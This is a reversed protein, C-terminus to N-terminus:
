TRCIGVSVETKFDQRRSPATEGAPGHQQYYRISQGDPGVAVDRLRGYTGKEPGSAFLREISKVAYRKDGPDFRLRLLAQSALTAVYLDGRFFTMGGPPVARKPWSAIPDAYEELNPANIAM